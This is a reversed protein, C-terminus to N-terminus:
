QHLMTLYEVLWGDFVFSKKEAILYGRHCYTEHKVPHYQTRIESTACAPEPCIL